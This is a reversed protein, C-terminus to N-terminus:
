SNELSQRVQECVQQPVQQNFLRVPQLELLNSTQPPTYDHQLSGPLSTLSGYLQQQQQPQQQQQLQQQQQQQQLQPPQDNTISCTSTVPTQQQQHQPQQQQQQQPPQTM